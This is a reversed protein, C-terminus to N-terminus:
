KFSEIELNRGFIQAKIGIKKRPTLDINEAYDHMQCNESYDYGLSLFNIQTEKSLVWELKVPLGHTLSQMKSLDLILEWSGNKIKSIGMDKLRMEKDNIKLNIFEDNPLALEVERRTTRKIKFSCPDCLQAETIEASCAKKKGSIEFVALEKKLFAVDFYFHVKQYPSLNLVVNEKIEDVFEESTHFNNDNTLIEELSSNAVFYVSGKELVRDPNQTWYLKSHAEALIALKEQAEIKSLGAPAFYIETRDAYSVVIEAQNSRIRRYDELEKKSLKLGGLEEGPIIKESEELETQDQLFDRLALNLIKMRFVNSVSKNPISLYSNGDLPINTPGSTQNIRKCSIISIFVFGMVM